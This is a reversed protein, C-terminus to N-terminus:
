LVVGERRINRILFPNSYHEPELWDSRAIAIPALFLGTDLMVEFAEGAMEVSARRMGAEPGDLIVAIDVDSDGRADGRARSGYLLAQVVPYRAAIRALFTRSAQIAKPDPARTATMHPYIAGIQSSQV